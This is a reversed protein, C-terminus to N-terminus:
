DHKTINRALNTMYKQKHTSNCESGVLYIPTIRGRVANATDTGQATKEPRREIGAVRHLRVVDDQLANVHDGEGGVHRACCGREDFLEASVVDCLPKAVLPSADLVDLFMPVNFTRILSWRHMMHFECSGSGLLEFTCMM